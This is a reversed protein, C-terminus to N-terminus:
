HEVLRSLFVCVLSFVGPWGERGVEGDVTTAAWMVSFCGVSLCSCSLVVYKSESPRSTTQLYKCVNIVTPSKVYCRTRHYFEVSSDMM